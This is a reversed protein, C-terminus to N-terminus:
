NLFLFQTSLHNGVRTVLLMDPLYYIFCCIHKKHTMSSVHGRFLYLTWLVALPQLPNNGDLKGAWRTWLLCIEGRCHRKDGQITRGWGSQSSPISLLIHNRRPLESFASWHSSIWPSPVWINNSPEKCNYYAFMKEQKHRKLHLLSYFIDSGPIRSENGDWIKLKVKMIHTHPLM